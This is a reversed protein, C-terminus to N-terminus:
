FLEKLVELGAMLDRKQGASLEAIRKTFSQQITSRVSSHVKGGKSTVELWITRRDSDKAGAHRRVLGKGILKDIMKSMAPASVGMWDALEKNSCKERIIKALLRYQQVTFRGRVIKGVEM